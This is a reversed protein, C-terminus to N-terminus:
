PNTRSSIYDSEFCRDSRQTGRLHQYVAKVSKPMWDKHRPISAYRPLDVSQVAAEDSLVITPPGPRPSMLTCGYGSQRLNFSPSTTPRSSTTAHQWEGVSSSRTSSGNSWIELATCIRASASHTKEIARQLFIRGPEMSASLPESGTPMM